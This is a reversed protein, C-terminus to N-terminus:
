RNTLEDVLVDEHADENLTSLLGSIMAEELNAQCVDPISVTPSKWNSFLNTCVQWVNSAVSEQDEITFM